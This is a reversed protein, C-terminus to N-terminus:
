HTTPRSIDGAPVRTRDSERASQRPACARRRRNHAVVSGTAGVGGGGGGGQMGGQMGDQMNNMPSQQMMPSNNIQPRTQQNSNNFNFNLGGNGGFQNTQFEQSQQGQQDQQRQPQQQHHFYRKAAHHDPNRFRGAEYKLDHVLMERQNENEEEFEAKKIKQAYTAYM